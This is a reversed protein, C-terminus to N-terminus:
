TLIRQWDKRLLTEDWKNPVRDTKYYFLKGKPECVEVFNCLSSDICHIEQANEIVKRWDFITYDDVPEFLIVDGEVHIPTGYASHRHVLKYPKNVLKNFLEEERKENRKYDLEWRKNIDIGALEYKATVFSDFRHKEKMWWKHVQSTTHLGFSLDVIKDYRSLNQSVPRVYDVYKFLDHYIHPCVWDVEYNYSLEKAIPLCILIDGVKGPQAILLKGKTVERLRGIPVNLYPEPVRDQETYNRQNSDHLHYIKVERAPNNVRYGSQQAEYAIKNDCGPLGLFYDGGDIEIQGKWIWADQSWGKRGWGTADFLIQKGRRVDHRSIALLTKHWGVSFLRSLSQDFYIDSNALISYESGTENAIRFFDKYTPREHPIHVCKPDSYGEEGVLVIKSIFPNQINKRLCDDLEKQRVPNSDKYYSTFLTVAGSVSKTEVRFKNVPRSKTNAHKDPVIFLHKFGQSGDEKAMRTVEADYAKLYKPKIMGRGGFLSLLDFNDKLEHFNYKEDNGFYIVNECQPDYGLQALAINLYLEDPQTGGWKNRLQELPIPNDFNEQVKQFLGDCFEGKRIYQFSSQTAPLIHDDLGYREWIDRRYAWVMLPMENESFKDYYGYVYCRYPKDESILKDFTKSIDRLCLADVDMFLTHDFPMRDYLSAKFRGPDDPENDMIEVSDFYRLPTYKLVGSTAFVHVPLDSYRKISMALNHAAYGYGRKGWFCLFIGKTM